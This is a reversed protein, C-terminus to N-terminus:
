NRWVACNEGFIRHFAVACARVPVADQIIDTRDNIAALSLQRPARTFVTLFMNLQAPMTKIPKIVAIRSSRAKTTTSTGLMGILQSTVPLINQSTGTGSACNRARQTVPVSAQNRPSRRGAFNIVNQAQQVIARAVNRVKILFGERQRRSKSVKSRTRTRGSRTAIVSPAQSARPKFVSNPAVLFNEIQPQCFTCEICHRNRPCEKISGSAVPRTQRRTFGWIRGTEGREFITPKKNCDGAGYGSVGPSSCSIPYRGFSNM